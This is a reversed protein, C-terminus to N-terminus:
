ISKIVLHLIQQALMKQAIWCDVELGELAYEVPRAAEAVGAFGLFVAPTELYEILVHRAKNTDTLQLVDQRVQALLHRVVLHILQELRDVRRGSLDVIGTHVGKSSRCGIHAIFVLWHVASRTRVM